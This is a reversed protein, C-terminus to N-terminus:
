GRDFNIKCDDVISVARERIELAFPEAENIKKEAMELIDYFIDWARKEKHFEEILLSPNDSLENIIRHLRIGLRFFELGEQHRGDKFFSALKLAFRLYVVTFPIMSVFCGTLPDIEHKIERSSWPLAHAYYSFLLIRVYDAILKGTSAAKIADGAFAEKDHRMILGDKHVYRLHEDDKFLVSLIYAQDEARGIFTPTFPRYRRLADILIGNTGGTVHVRQICLRKGDMVGDYRTMMESLTSLAQPLRSHFIFEDYKPGKSPFTVDPTFISQNIDAMNVLAGAIMGLYVKRGASDIGKAGWLPTKLHEFATMGTERLLDEQPFVQDLDIKFTGRVDPNIFVQWLASIAKLFTYHRGYEGDVGFVKNLLAGDGIRYRESLPILIEKILRQTDAETFVYVELNHIDKENRLEDEIYDRAIKQLGKHTVSVSLLCQIRQDKRLNGQRKEFEIANDLGELGYLIENHESSIGVPIPHDYWYIQEEETVERITERIRNSVSVTDGQPITLLINSTFLIEEEPRKIPSPNLSTIRIMRKRRLRKIEEDRNNLASLGEPFFVHYFIRITTEHDKAAQPDVLWSYLGDIAKRFGDDKKYREVIESEILRIGKRYFCAAEKWSPHSEFRELYEMADTYSPHADGSLLILFSANINRAISAPDEMDPMLQQTIDIKSPSGEGDILHGIIGKFQEMVGEKGSNKM